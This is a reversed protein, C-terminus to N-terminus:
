YQFVGPSGAPGCDRGPFVPEDYLVRVLYLGAAPATHGADTRERSALARDVCDPEFRGTGVDILTGAITRVMNYLFGNGQVVLAVRNHRAVLRLAHIRRVTTKRVSGANSFAAFDHEGVFRRAADRMRALDLPSRTWHFLGKGLPPHFRSTHILYAY